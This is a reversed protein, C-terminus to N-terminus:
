GIRVRLVGDIQGCLAQCIAALTPTSETETFGRKLDPHTKENMNDIKKIKIKINRKRAQM